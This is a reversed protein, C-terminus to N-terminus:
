LDLVFVTILEFIWLRGLGSFIGICIGIGIKAILKNTAVMVCKWMWPTSLSNSWTQARSDHSRVTVFLCVKKNSISHFKSLFLFPSQSLFSMFFRLRFLLSPNPAKGGDGSSLKVVNKQRIRRTRRFDM